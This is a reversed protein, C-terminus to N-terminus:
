VSLIELDRAHTSLEHWDDWKPERKTHKRNGDRRSSLIGVRLLGGPDTSAGTTM